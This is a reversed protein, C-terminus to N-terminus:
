RHPISEGHPREGQRSQFHAICRRVCTIHITLYALRDSFLSHAAVFNARSLAFDLPLQSRDLRLQFRDLRLQCPNLRLQNRDMRM